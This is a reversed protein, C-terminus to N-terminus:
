LEPCATLKKFNPRYTTLATRILETVREDTLVSRYNSKIIKKKRQTRPKATQQRRFHPERVQHLQGGRDYLLATAYLISHLPGALILRSM